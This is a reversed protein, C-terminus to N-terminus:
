HFDPFAISEKESGIQDCITISLTILATCVYQISEPKWDAFSSSVNKNDVKLPRFILM